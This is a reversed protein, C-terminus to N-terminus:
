LLNLFSFINHLKDHDDVQKITATVLAPTTVIIRMTSPMIGPLPNINFVYQSIFFKLFYRIM